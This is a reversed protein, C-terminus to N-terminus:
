ARLSVQGRHVAYNVQNHRARPIVIQPPISGCYPSLASQPQQQGAGVVSTGGPVQQRQTGGTADLLSHPSLHYSAPNLESAGTAQSRM